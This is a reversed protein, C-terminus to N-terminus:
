CNYGTWHFQPGHYEGRNFVDAGFGNNATVPGVNAIIYEEGIVDEKSVHDRTFPEQWADFTEDM